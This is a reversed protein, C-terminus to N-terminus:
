DTHRHEDHAGEISHPIKDHNMPNDLVGHIGEQRWYTARLRVREGRCVPCLRPAYKRNKLLREFPRGMGWWVRVVQWGIGAQTVAYMLPNGRGTAHHTLRQKILERGTPGSGSYGIYHRAHHYPRDFHILYVM